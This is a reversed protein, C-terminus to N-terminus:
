RGGAVRQGISILASRNHVEVRPRLWRREDASRGIHHNRAIRHAQGGGVPHDNAVLDGSGSGVRERIGSGQENGESGQPPREAGQGHSSGVHPPEVIRLFSPQDRGEAAAPPRHRGGHAAQRRVIADLAPRLRRNNATPLWLPPRVPSSVRTALCALITPFVRNIEDASMALDGGILRALLRAM